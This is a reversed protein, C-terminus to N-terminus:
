SGSDKIFRWIIKIWIVRYFFLLVRKIVKQWVWTYILIEGFWKCILKEIFWKLFVKKVLFRWLFEKIIIGWVIGKIFKVLIIDWFILRVIFKYFFVRILLDGLFINLLKSCIYLPGLIKMLVISFIFNDETKFVKDKVCFFYEYYSFVYRPDKENELEVEIEEIVDSEKLIKIDHRL